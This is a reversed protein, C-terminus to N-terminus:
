VSSGRLSCSLISRGQGLKLYLRWGCPPLSLPRMPDVEGAPARNARVPRTPPPGTRWHIIVTPNEDLYLTSENLAQVPRSNNDYIATFAAIQNKLLQTPTKRVYRKVGESCPTTLSGDCHCIGTADVDPIEEFWAFAGSGMGRRM